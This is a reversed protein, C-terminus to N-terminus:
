KLIKYEAPYKNIWQLLVSKPSINFKECTTRLSGEENLYFEVEERECVSRKGTGFLYLRM